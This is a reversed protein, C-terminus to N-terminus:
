AGYLKVPTVEVSHKDNSVYVAGDQVTIQLSMTREALTALAQSQDQPVQWVWLNQARSLKNAIGDWWTQTGYNYVSVKAVRASARLLRKDDPQGLEIWHLLRGTLDKQWIAPEDADWMDKAFELPGQDDNPPMNLAFALLRNMLRENNESPHQAIVTNQTLYLQRDLDSLELTAKCITAKIAM